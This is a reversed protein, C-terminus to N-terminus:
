VSQKLGMLWFSKVFDLINLFQCLCVFLLGQQEKVEMAVRGSFVYKDITRVVSHSVVLVHDTSDQWFGYGFHYVAESIIGANEFYRLLFM